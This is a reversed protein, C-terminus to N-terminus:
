FDQVVGQITVPGRGLLFRQGIAAQPSPIGLKNVLTENVVVQMVTDGRPRPSITDGALMRLQFMRTYNEDIVKVETVDDKAIGRSPCSFPAFNSNYSPAGTSFSVDTINPNALLQPKLIVRRNSDPVFFTVVSEKNFGLDRNQFY